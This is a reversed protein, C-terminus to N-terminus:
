DLPYKPLQLQKPHKQHKYHKQHEFDLVGSGPPDDYHQSSDPWSDSPLRCQM